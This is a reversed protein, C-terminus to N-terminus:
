FESLFNLGLNRQICSVVVRTHLQQHTENQISTTLYTLATGHLKITNNLPFTKGIEIVVALEQM